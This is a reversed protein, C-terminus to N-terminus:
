IPGAGAQEGDLVPQHAIGLDQGLRLERLHPARWVCVHVGGPFNVCADLNPYVRFTMGAARTLSRKRAPTRPRMRARRVRLKLSDMVPWSMEFERLQRVIISRVSCTSCRVLLPTATP